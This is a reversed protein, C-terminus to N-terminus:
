FTFGLLNEPFVKIPMDFWGLKDNARSAITHADNIAM